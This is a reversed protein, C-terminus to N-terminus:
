RLHGVIVLAYAIVGTLLPVAIWSTAAMSDFRMGNLASLAMDSFHTGPEMKNRFYFIFALRFFSLYLMFSLWLKAHKLFQFFFRTFKNM